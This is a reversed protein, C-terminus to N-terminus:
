IYILLSKFFFIPSFKQLRSNNLPNKSIVGFTLDMFFLNNYQIKDLNFVEAWKFISNPSYFPLGSGPLFYKWTM